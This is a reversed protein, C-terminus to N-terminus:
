AIQTDCVRWGTEFILNFDAATTQVRDGLAVTLTSTVTARKDSKAVEAPPSWAVKMTLKAVKADREALKVSDITRNVEARDAERQCTYRLTEEPDKNIFVASLWRNVVTTPRAFDPHVASDAQPSTGNPQNVLLFGGALLVVAAGLMGVLMGNSSRRVTQSVDRNPARDHRTRSQNTRGRDPRRDARRDPEAAPVAPLYATPQESLPTGGTDPPDRWDPPGFGGGRQGPRGYGNGPAGHSHAHYTDPYTEERYGSYSSYGSPQTM